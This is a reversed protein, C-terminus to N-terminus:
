EPICVHTTGVAAVANKTALSKFSTSEPAFCVYVLNTTANESVTLGNLADTAATLNKRTKFEPKVENKTVLETLWSAAPPLQGGTGPSDAETTTAWPYKQFTTYYREVANLLEAADSKRGSDNAKRIQELPNIASLIAVALIGLIVIVILLEILTFGKTTRNM